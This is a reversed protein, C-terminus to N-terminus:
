FPLNDNMLQTNIETLDEHKPEFVKKANFCEDLFKKTYVMVEGKYSPTDVTRTGYKAQRLKAYAAVQEGLQSGAPRKLYDFLSLMEVKKEM